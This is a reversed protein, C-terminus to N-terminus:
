RLIPPLRQGARLFIPETAPWSALFLQGSRFVTKKIRSSIILAYKEFINCSIYLLYKVTCLTCMFTFFADFYNREFCLIDLLDPFTRLNKWIVSYLYTKFHATINAIQFSGETAGIFKLVNRTNGRCFIIM